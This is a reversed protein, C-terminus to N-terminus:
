AVDDTGGDIGAGTENVLISLEQTSMAFFAGGNGAAEGTWGKAAILFVRLQGRSLECACFVLLTGCFPEFSSESGLSSKRIIISSHKAPSKRGTAGGYLNPSHSPSVWDHTM